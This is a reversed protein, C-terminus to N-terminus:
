YGISWGAATFATYNALNQIYAAPYTAETFGLEALTKTGAYTSSAIIDLLLQNVYTMLLNTDKFMDTLTTANYFKLGYINRVDSGEFMSTFDTCYGTYIGYCSKGTEVNDFHAGKFMSNASSPRIDLRYTPMYIYSDEFMSDCIGTVGNENIETQISSNTNITAGKFCSSYDGTHSNSRHSTRIIGKVTAGEFASDFSYGHELYINTDPDSIYANKFISSYITVTRDAGLDVLYKTAGVADRGCNEFMSNASYMNPFNINVDALANCDKFAKTANEVNSNSLSIAKLSKCNEFASQMDELSALNSIDLDCEYMNICNKMFDVGLNTIICGDEFRLKAYRLSSCNLFMEEVSQTTSPLTFNIYEIPTNKFTFQVMGVTDLVSNAPFFMIDPFDAADFSTQYDQRNNIWNKSAIATNFGKIVSIPTSSYGLQIWDPPFGEGAKNVLRGPM